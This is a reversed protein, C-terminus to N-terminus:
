ETKIFHFGKGHGKGVLFRLRRVWLEPLKKLEARRLERLVLRMVKPDMSTDTAPTQYDHQKTGPLHRLLTLKYIHIYLKSFTHHVRYHIRIMHLHSMCILHLIHLPFMNHIQKLGTCLLDPTFHAVTEFRTATADAQDAKIKREGTKRIRWHFILNLNWFLVGAEGFVFLEGPCPFRLFCSRCKIAMPPLLM